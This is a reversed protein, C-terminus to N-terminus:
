IKMVGSHHSLLM